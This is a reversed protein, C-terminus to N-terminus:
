LNSRFPLSPTPPWKGLPEGGNSKELNQANVAVDQLQRLGELCQEDGELNVELDDEDVTM